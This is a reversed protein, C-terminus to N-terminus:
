ALKTSATLQNDILNSFEPINNETPSSFPQKPHLTDGESEPLLPTTQYLQKVARLTMVIEAVADQPSYTHPVPVEAVLDLGQPETGTPEM